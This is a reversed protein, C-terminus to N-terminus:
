YKVKFSPSDEPRSDRRDYLRTTAISAHDAWDQVKAIDAANSLANTIATARALHVWRGEVQDALGTQKAYTLVLGYISAPHLHKRLEGTVNNRVPRFLPGEKDEVHGAAKLYDDVLRLTEPAMPKYSLKDRKGRVRLHMVGQRPHIDKVDLKAVSERRLAHFFLVSLIARDRKGKLTDPDPADLLLRAQEDSLAPTKGENNGENPRKVGKVPNHTVANCECLHEFLSSLASLKRRVTAASTPRNTEGYPTTKTIVRKEVADRWAIIHARTM